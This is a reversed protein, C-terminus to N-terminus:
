ATARQHDLWRRQTEAAAITLDIKHRREFPERGHAHLWFHSGSRMYGERGQDQHMHQGCLPITRTWDDKRGMGGTKIHACQSFGVVHCAVCAQEHIWEVYGKPGYIRLTESPKRPKKKVATRRIPKTSRHPSSFRKM